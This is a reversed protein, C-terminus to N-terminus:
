NVNELETVDNILINKVISFYSIYYMDGIESQLIKWIEVGEQEFAEIEKQNRFHSDPPYESDYISQYWVQWHLLRKKIEKSISLEDPEIMGVNNPDSSKHWWLPGSGFEPRIRITSKM